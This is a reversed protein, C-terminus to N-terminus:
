CNEIQVTNSHKVLLESLFMARDRVRTALSASTSIVISCCHLVLFYTELTTSIDVETWIM